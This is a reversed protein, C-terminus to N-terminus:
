RQTDELVRDDGCGARLVIHKTHDRDQEKPSENIYKLKYNKCKIFKSSSCMPADRTIKKLNHNKSFLRTLKFFKECKVIQVIYNIM